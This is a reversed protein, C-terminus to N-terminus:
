SCSSPRGCCYPRGCPSSPAGKARASEKEAGEKQPLRTGYLRLDTAEQRRGRPDRCAAMQLSAEYLRINGVAVDCTRADVMGMRPPPRPCRVPAM